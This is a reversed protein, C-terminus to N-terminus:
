SFKMGMTASLICAFRQPTLLWSWQESSSVRVHRERPYRVSAQQPVTGAFHELGHFGDATATSGRLSSRQAVRLMKSLSPQVKFYGSRQLEGYVSRSKDTVPKSACTAM